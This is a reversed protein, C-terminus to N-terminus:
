PIARFLFQLHPVRYVDPLKEEKLSYSTPWLDENGWDAMTGPNSHLHYFSNVGYNLYFWDITAGRHAQVDLQLRVERDIKTARLQELRASRAEPRRQQSRLESVHLDQRLYKLNWGEINLLVTRNLVHLGQRITRLM